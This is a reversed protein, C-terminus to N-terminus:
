AVKKNVSAIKSIQSRTLKPSESKETKEEIQVTRLVSQELFFKECVNLYTGLSFLTKDVIKKGKKETLKWGTLRSYNKLFIDFNFDETKMGRVKAIERVNNASEVKNTSCDATVKNFKGAIAKQVFNQLSNVGFSDLKYNRSADVRNQYTSVSKSSKAM